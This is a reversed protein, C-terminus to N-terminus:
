RKSLSTKPADELPLAQQDQITIDKRRCYERLMVEIMKAISHHDRDAAARPAEKMAPEIRFTLKGAAM